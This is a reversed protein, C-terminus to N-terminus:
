GCRCWGASQMDDPDFTEVRLGAPAILWSTRRGQAALGAQLERVSAALHLVLQETRDEGLMTHLLRTEVRLVVLAGDPVDHVAAGLAHAAVERVDVDPAATDGM